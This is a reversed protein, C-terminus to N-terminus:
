VKSQSEAESKDILSTRHCGPLWSSWPSSLSVLAQPSFHSLSSESNVRMMQKPSIPPWWCTTWHGPGRQSVRPDCILGSRPRTLGTHAPSDLTVVCLEQLHECPDHHTWKDSCPPSTDRWRPPSCFSQYLLTVKWRILMGARAKSLFSCSWWKRCPEITNRM